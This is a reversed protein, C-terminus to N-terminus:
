KLKKQYVEKFFVLAQLFSDALDDRKKHKNYIVEWDSIDNIKDNLFSICVHCALKKNYKYGKECKASIQSNEVVEHISDKSLYQYAKNKRTAAVFCTKFKIDNCMEEKEKEKEKVQNRKMQAFYTFIVIQISKMIPNKLVPQNEILIYDYDNANNKTLNDLTELLTNTTEHIDYKSGGGSIDFVDWLHIDVAKEDVSQSFSIDCVGLNKVGIDFSLFRM